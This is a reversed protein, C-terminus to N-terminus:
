AAIAQGEEDATPFVRHKITYADDELVVQKATRSVTNVVIPAALNLTMDQPRSPPISVTTLVVAPTDDTLQLDQADDDSVIPAYDSVYACPDTVLFATDGDDLSQLWQFPSDSKHEVLVFSNLFNFGVLGAPFTIVDEESYNLNGFRATEKQM